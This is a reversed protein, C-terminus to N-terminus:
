YEESSTTSYHQENLPPVKNFYGNAEKKSSKKTKKYFLSSLFGSKNHDEFEGGMRLKSKMQKWLCLMFICLFISVALGGVVSSAILASKVGSPVEYAPENYYEYGQYYDYDVVGTYDGNLIENTISEDDSEGDLSFYTIPIKTTTRQTTRRNTVLGGGGGFSSPSDWRFRVGGGGGFYPDTNKYVKPRDKRKTEKPHAPAPKAGYIIESDPASEKKTLGIFIQDLGPVTLDKREKVDDATMNLNSLTMNLSTYPTTTNEVEASTTDSESNSAEEQTTEDLVNYNRESISDPTPLYKKTKQRSKMNKINTPTPKELSKKSTREGFRFSSSTTPLDYVTTTKMTTTKRLNKFLNSNKFINISSKGRSRTTKRETTTTSEAKPTTTETLVTDPKWEKFKINLGEYPDDTAKKVDVPKKTTPETMKRHFKLVQKIAEKNGRMVDPLSFGVKSLVESLSMPSIKKVLSKFSMTSAEAEIEADIDSDSNSVDNEELTEEEERNNWSRKPADKRLDNRKEEYEDKGEKGRNSWSIRRPYEQRNDKPEESDDETQEEEDFKDRSGWTKRRPFKLSISRENDEKEDKPLDKKRNALSFRRTPPDNETDKKTKPVFSNKYEKSVGESEYRSKFDGSKPRKPWPIKIEKKNSSIKEVVDDKYMNQKQSKEDEKEEGFTFDFTESPEWEKIKINLGEYPDETPEEVHTETETMYSKSKMAKGVVELAQPNKNFIDSPSFGNKQLIIKLKSLPIEKTIDAMKLHMYDIKGGDRTKLVNLFTKGYNNEKAGELKTGEIKESSKDIIIDNEIEKEKLSPQSNRPKTKQKRIHTKSYANEESLNELPGSLNEETPAAHYDESELEEEVTNLSPKIKQTRIHTKSYANEESINDLPGALSEIKPEVTSLEKPNFEHNNDDLINWFNDEPNDFTKPKSTSSSRHRGEMFARNVEFKSTTQSEEEVQLEETKDSNQSNLINFKQDKWREDNRSNVGGSPYKPLPNPTTAEIKEQIKKKNFAIDSRREADRSSTYSTPYNSIMEAKETTSMQTPIFVNEIPEDSELLFDINLGEDDKIPELTSKITPQFKQKKGAEEPPSLTPLFIAQKKIPPDYTYSPSPGDVMKDNDFENEDSFIDEKEDGGYDERDLTFFPSGIRREDQYSPRETPPKWRQPRIPAKEVFPRLPYQSPQFDKSYFDTNEKVPPIPRDRKWSKEKWSKEPRSNYFDPDSKSMQGLPQFNKPRYTTVKFNGPLFNSPRYTTVQNRDPKNEQQSSSEEGGINGGGFIGFSLSGPHDEKITKAGGFLNKEKDAAAKRYDLVKVPNISLSVPNVIDVESPVKFEELDDLQDERDVEKQQFRTVGRTREGTNQYRGPRVRRRIGIDSRRDARDKVFERGAPVKNRFVKRGGVQDSREYDINDVAKNPAVTVGRAKKFGWEPMAGASLDTFSPDSWDFEPFFNTREFGNQEKIESEDFLKRPVTQQQELDGSQKNTQRVRTRERRRQGAAPGLALGVVVLTSVLM